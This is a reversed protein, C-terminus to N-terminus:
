RASPSCIASIPPLALCPTEQNNALAYVSNRWTYDWRGRSPSPGCAAKPRRLKRLSRRHLADATAFRPPIPHFRACRAAVGQAATCGVGRVQPARGEGQLPPHLFHSGTRAVRDADSNRTPRAAFQSFNEERDVVQWKSKDGRLYFPLRFAPLRLTGGGCRVSAARARKSRARRVANWM